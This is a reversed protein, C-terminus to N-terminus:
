NMFELKFTDVEEYNRGMVVAVHGTKMNYVISWITSDQSVKQLVGMAKGPSFAGQNEVLAKHVINYRVCPSKTPEFPLEESIIFNTSVLWPEENPLVVMEGGTFEIVVAHGTADAILYHLPPGGEFDINYTELLELAEDVNSAYDLVMRMAALSGITLKEADFPPQAHDVAMMGITLGKENMGDFPLFPANLLNLQESWSLKPPVEGDLGKYDAANYDILYAIDVMSVTAYKDDPYTFLLLTPRNRWDFNRGFVMDANQNLAAFCTCAWSPLKDPIDVPSYSLANAGNQVHDILDYAAYYKMTYLPYNNVRELSSLTRLQKESLPFFLAAIVLLIVVSLFIWRRFQKHRCEQNIFPTDM